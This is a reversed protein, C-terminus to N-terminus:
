PLHRIISRVVSDATNSADINIGYDFKSVLKYVDKAADKGYPKSRQKDRNVCTKLDAKLTFVYVDPGLKKILDSLQKKYYFNGDFVAVKRKATLLKLSIENAKLFNKLPIKGKSINDLHNKALIGDVSVYRCNLISALKKSVTTKGIGLPGRIIICYAM